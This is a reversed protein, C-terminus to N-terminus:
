AVAEIRLKPDSKIDRYHECEAWSMPRTVNQISGDRKVRVCRFKTDPSAAKTEVVPPKTEAVPSPTEGVTPPTELEAIVEDTLDIVDGVPSGPTDLGEISGGRVALWISAEDIIPVGDADFLGDVFLAAHKTTGLAATIREVTPDRLAGLIASRADHHLCLVDNMLNVFQEGTM